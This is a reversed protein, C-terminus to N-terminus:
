GWTIAVANPQQFGFPNRNLGYTSLEPFRGDLGGLTAAQRKPVNTPFLSTHSVDDIAGSAGLCSDDRIEWDNVERLLIIVSCSGAGHLPYIPQILLAKRNISNPTRAQKEKIAQQVVPLLIPVLYYLSFGPIYM